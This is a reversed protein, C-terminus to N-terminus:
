LSNLRFTALSSELKRFSAPSVGFSMLRTQKTIRMALQSSNSALVLNQNNTDYLHLGLFNQGSTSIILTVALGFTLSKPANRFRYNEWFWWNVYEVAAIGLVNGACLVLQGWGVIFMKVYLIYEMAPSRIIPFCILQFDYSFLPPPKM